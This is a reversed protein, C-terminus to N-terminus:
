EGEKRPPRRTFAKLEGKGYFEAEEKATLPVDDRGWWPGSELKDWLATDREEPM